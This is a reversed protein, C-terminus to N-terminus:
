APQEVDDLVVRNVSMAFAQWAAALDLRITHVYQPDPKHEYPFNSLACSTRNHQVAESLLQDALGVFPQLLEPTLAARGREDQQRDAVTRPLRAIRQLAEDYVAELSALVARQTLQDDAQQSLARHIGERYRQLAQSRQLEVWQRYDDLRDVLRAENAAPESLRAETLDRRLRAAASLAGELYGPSRSGTESGGLLLRGGWHAQQLLATPEAHRPPLPEEQLDLASCTLADLAWDHRVWTGEGAAQGFVACMQSELLLPMARDYSKRHESGLAFFGALAAGKIQADGELAGRGDPVAPSADFIETLVAQPHTVWANGTLAAERWFAHSTFLAAKAATAMWTPADTLAASLSEPLAPAFQVQQAVLRPPLALVLRRAPKQWRSGDDREFELVVHDGQDTVTLLRQGLHLRDAALPAALAEILAAMGGALRRAGAHLRGAAPAETAVDSGQASFDSLVTQLEPSRNPDHLVLVRGDDPQALTALGLDAILRAIGPQTSPWYWTAGLDVRQTSPGAQGAAAPVSLVRGGLRQRAEFLQFDCHRATLSHALALGCLGGGIIAVDLM